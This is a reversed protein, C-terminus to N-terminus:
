EGNLLLDRDHLGACGLALEVTKTGITGNTSVLVGDLNDTAMSGFVALCVEVVIGLLGATVGARVEAETVLGDLSRIQYGGRVEHSAM